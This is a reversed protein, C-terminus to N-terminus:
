FEVSLRLGVVVADKISHDGSPRRVYQIDPQLRVHDTILDSYTLEWVTESGSLDLGADQGNDLYGDSFVLHSVGFSLASDPRSTLAPELTLGAQLSGKLDGTKGDSAGIRAFATLAGHTDTAEHLPQEVVGYVGHSSRSVPDGASNTDRLDPQRDGYAWAGIALKGRGTWGAEAVFLAGDDFSFDAGDHDGPVGTRANTAAVQAYGNEGLQHWIRAGFSTSPYASAGPGGGGFDPGMGFAPGVLWGSSDATAFEGSLDSFGIRVNARDDFLSQEVYAQYLRLYHGEVEINDTGQAAGTSNNPAGGSNTLLELHASGGSWGTLRDLDLDAALSLSDLHHGRKALGGSINGILDAKYSLTVEVPSSDPATDEAFVPTAMSLLFMGSAFAATKSINRVISNKNNNIM